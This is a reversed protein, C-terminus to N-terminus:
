PRELVTTLGGQQAGTADIQIEFLMNATPCSLSRREARSPRTRRKPKPLAEALDMGELTSDNTHSSVDQEANTNLVLMNTTGGVVMHPKLQPGLVTSEESFLMGGPPCSRTKSRRSKRRPRVAEVDGSSPEVDGKDNDTCNEKDEGDRLLPEDEEEEEDDEPERKAIWMKVTCRMCFVVHSRAVYLSTFLMCHLLVECKGNGDGDILILEEKTFIKPLLYLRVPICAAILVPFTIAIVKISKVVYLLAFFFLQIATFLHMRWAKMYQTYPQVPYKSPQMSFMLLRGWFQNTGLSM